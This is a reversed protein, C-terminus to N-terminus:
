AGLVLPEIKCRQSNSLRHSPESGVEIPLPDSPCRTARPRAKSSTMSLSLRAMKGDCIQSIEFIVKDYPKSTRAVKFCNSFADYKASGNILQIGGTEYSRPSGFKTEYEM